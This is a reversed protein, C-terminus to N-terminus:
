RRRNRQIVASISKDVMDVSGAAPLRDSKTRKDQFSGRAAALATFSLLYHEFSLACGSEGASVGRCEATEVASRISSQVKRVSRCTTAAVDM